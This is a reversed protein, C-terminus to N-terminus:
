RTRGLAAQLPFYLVGAMIANAIATVIVVMTLATFAPNANVTVFMTLGKFITIYSFGSALTGAFTIFFPRILKVFGFDMKIMALVGVVMAGIPESIFNLYPFLSKTTVQCVAAAVLSIGLIASLKPRLLLIALCYMGIIFNPTIGAFPPTFMRLVAGVALLVAVVAVEVAQLGKREVMRTEVSM